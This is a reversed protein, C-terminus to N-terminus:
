IAAEAEGVALGVGERGSGGRGERAGRAFAEGDEAAGASGFVDGGLFAGAGDEFHGVAGADEEVDALDEFSGAAAGDDGDFEEADLDIMRVTGALNTSYANTATAVDRHVTKGEIDICIKIIEGKNM